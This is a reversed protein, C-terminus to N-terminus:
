PTADRGEDVERAAFIMGALLLPGILVFALQLTMGLASQGHQAALSSLLGLAGFILGLTGLGFPSRKLLRFGDLLWEAGASAPVKRID